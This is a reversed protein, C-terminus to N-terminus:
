TPEPSEPFGAQQLPRSAGRILEDEDEDGGGRVLRGSNDEIDAEATVEGDGAL